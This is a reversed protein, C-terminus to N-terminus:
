ADRTPLACGSADCHAASRQASVANGVGIASISKTDWEAILRGVLLGLELDDVPGFHSLRLRGEADIVTISPTGRWDYIRMTAPISAGSVAQDVAIPFRLRYEHIFTKLADVNMVAHHEFVSHMGIVSIKGGAIQHLRQAQPMSHSVCSPCLMQFTFLVVVRGRLQELSLDSATNLWHSTIWNPAIAMLQPM